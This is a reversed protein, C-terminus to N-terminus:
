KCLMFHYELYMGEEWYWSPSYMVIFMLSPIAIVASAKWEAFFKFPIAELSRANKLVGVDRFTLLLFLFFYSIFPVM